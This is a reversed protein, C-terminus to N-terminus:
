LLLIRPTLLLVPSLRDTSVGPARSGQPGAVHARVLVAGALCVQSLFASAQCWPDALGTPPASLSSCLPLLSLSPALPATSPQKIRVQGKEGCCCHPSGWSPCLARSCRRHGPVSPRCPPRAGLDRRAPGRVAVPCWHWGCGASPLLTVPLPYCGLTLRGWLHRALWVGGLTDQFPRSPASGLLDASNHVIM